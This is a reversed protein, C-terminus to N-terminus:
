KCIRRKIIKIRTWYLVIHQKLISVHLLYSMSSGLCWVGCTMGLSVSGAKGSKMLLTVHRSEFAHILSIFIISHRLTMCPITNSVKLVLM